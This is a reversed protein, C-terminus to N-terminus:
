DSSLFATLPRMEDVAQRQLYLKISVCFFVFLVEEWMSSWGLVGINLPLVARIPTSQPQAQAELVVEVLSSISLIFGWGQKWAQPTSDRSCLSQRDIISDQGSVKIVNGHPCPTGPRGPSQIYSSHEPWGPNGWTYVSAM